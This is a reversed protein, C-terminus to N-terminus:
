IVQDNPARITLYNAVANHGKGKAKEAATKEENRLKTDCLGEVLLRVSAIHNNYAALMLPTWM